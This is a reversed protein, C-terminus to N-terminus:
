IRLLLNILRRLLLLAQGHCTGPKGIFLNSATQLLILLKNLEHEPGGHLVEVGTIAGLGNDLGDRLSEYLHRLLALPILM